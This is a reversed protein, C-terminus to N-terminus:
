GIKKVVAIVPDVFSLEGIKCLIELVAWVVLNDKNKLETHLDAMLQNQEVISMCSVGWGIEHQNDTEFLCIEILERATYM